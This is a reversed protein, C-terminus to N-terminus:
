GKDKPNYNLAQQLSKNFGSMNQLKKTEAAKLALLQRATKVEPMDGVQKHFDTYHGLNQKEGFLNDENARLIEGKEVRIMEGVLNALNLANVEGKVQLFDWVANRVSEYSDLMLVQERKTKNLMKKTLAIKNDICYQKIRQNIIEPNLGLIENRWKHFEAFPNKAKSKSAFVEKHATEILEQHAVFKFVEKLRTLFLIQEHSLLEFSNKQRELDKLRQIEEILFLEFEPSLWGAFKIAIDKHAYTGSNKGEVTFIGKSNTLEVWKKITLERKKILNLVTSLHAGDYNKNYKKEWVDLFSITSGTRIWTLISKRERWAKAMDTLNIYDNRDDSLLSIQSGQYTIMANKTSSM